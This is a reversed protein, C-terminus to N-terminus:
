AKAQLAAKLMPKETPPDEPAPEFLADHDISYIDSFHFLRPQSLSLLHEAVSNSPSDDRCEDDNDIITLSGRVDKLAKSEPSGVYTAKESLM